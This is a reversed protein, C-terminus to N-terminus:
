AAKREAFQLNSGPGGRPPYGYERLKGSLTRLGIKLTQATQERNGRFRNFTTEILKREMERLTMGPTGGFDSTSEGDLWPRLSDATLTGTNDIAAAKQIVHCLQSVNGAWECAILLQRADYSLRRCPQGEQVALQHLFHEALPIVDDRRERLSPVVVIQGSLLQWLGSDLQGEEVLCEPDAHTVAIVRVAEHQPSDLISFQRIFKALTKQLSLPVTELNELILTGGAAQQMRSSDLPLGNTSTGFLDHELVASSQLSCDVAILPRDARISFLHVARAVLTTGSGRDGAVVLPTEQEAAELIEDRLREAQESNGVFEEFLRRHSRQNLREIEQSLQLRQSASALRGALRGSLCPKPILEFKGATDVDPSGLLELTALGLLTVSQRWQSASQCFESLDGVTEDLDILCVDQEYQALHDTASALDACVQVDYGAITADAILKDRTRGDPATILVRCGHRSQQFPIIEAM